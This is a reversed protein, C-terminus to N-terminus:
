LGDEHQHHTKRAKVTVCRIFEGSVLEPREVLLGEASAHFRVTALQM